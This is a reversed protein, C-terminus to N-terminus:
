GDNSLRDEKGSAIDVIYLDNNRTFAVKLGDPSLVPNKEEEKNDTLQKEAGEISKYIVDNNKVFVTAKEPVVYHEVKGTIVDAIVTDYGKDLPKYLIYHSDDKWGGVEPLDNLLGKTNGHLMQDATLEKLQAASINVSVCFLYISILRLFINRM